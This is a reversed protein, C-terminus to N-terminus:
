VVAPSPRILGLEVKLLPWSNFKRQGKKKELFFCKENEKKELNDYGMNVM